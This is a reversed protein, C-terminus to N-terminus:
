RLFVQPKARLSPNRNGRNVLSKVSEQESHFGGISFLSCRRSRNPHELSEWEYCGPLPKEDVPDFNYKQIFRQRQEEEAGAFFEDMEHASPIIHGQMSNQLRRTAEASSTARTTSCPTQVSNPDRILNCPTSERTSRGREESDLVNEGFSAEIGVDNNDENNDEENVTIEDYDAKQTVEDDVDKLGAIFGSGSNVSAVKVRSSCRADSNRGPNPNQSTTDFPPYKPKKSETVIPPKRLRRSRLQLYSGSNAPSSSPSPSATRQLRRLALTKARTRVGLESQSVDMAAVEAASKLKRMYKGM